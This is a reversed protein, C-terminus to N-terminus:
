RVGEEMQYVIANRSDSHGGFTDWRRTSSIKWREMQDLTIKWNGKGSSSSSRMHSSERIPIEFCKVHFRDFPNNVFGFRYAFQELVWLCFPLQAFLLFHKTEPYRVHFQTAVSSPTGGELHELAHGGRSLGNNSAKGCLRLTTLANLGDVFIFPIDNLLKKRHQTM